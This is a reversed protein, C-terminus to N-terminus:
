DSSMCYVYAKGTRWAKEHDADTKALDADWSVINGTFTPHHSPKSANCLDMRAQWDASSTGGAFPTNKPVTIMRIVRYTHPQSCRVMAKTTWCESLSDPVKAGRPFLPLGHKPLPYIAVAQHAKRGTGYDYAAVDCRVWRAGDAIEEATPIYWALNVDIATSPSPGLAKSFRKGCMPALHARLYDESTSSLTTLPVNDIVAYTIATHPRTCPVTPTENTRPRIDAATLQRCQGVQPRHDAVATPSGSPDTSQSPSPESSPSSTGCAAMALSSAIVSLILMRRM